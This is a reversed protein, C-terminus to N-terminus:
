EDEMGLLIKAAQAADQIATHQSVYEAANGYATAEIGANPAIVNTTGDYSQLAKYTTLEEDTLPTIIPTALVYLVTCSDVEIDSKLIFQQSNPVVRCEGSNAPTPKYVGVNCLCIMSGYKIENSVIGEYRSYQSSYSLELEEKFVYQTKTGAEFDVVDSIWQQGSEDVWNGGSDVPIGPLGDPTPIPLQQLAKYPTYVLADKEGPILSTKIVIGNFAHGTRCRFIVYNLKKTKDNKFFCPKGQAGTYMENSYSIYTSIASRASEDNFFLQLVFEGDPLSLFQDLKFYFDSGYTGTSTGDLQLDGNPLIIGIIGSKNDGSKFNYAGDPNFLNAGCVMVAVKGTDGASVIPVPKEASPTSDLTSRGFLKLGQMKGAVSPSVSALNTGIASIKLISEEPTDTGSSAAILIDDACYKGATLLRTQTGANVSIQIDAM